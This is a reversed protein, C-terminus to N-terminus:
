ASTLAPTWCLAFLAAEAGLVVAVWRRWLWVGRAIRLHLLALPAGIGVLFWGILVTDEWSLPQYTPERYGFAVTGSVVGIALLAGAAVLAPVTAVLGRLPASPIPTDTAAHAHRRRQLVAWGGLVVLGTTAVQLLAM